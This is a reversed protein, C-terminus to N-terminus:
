IWPAPAGAKKDKVPSIFWVFMCRCQPALQSLRFGKETRTQCYTAATWCRPRRCRRRYWIVVRQRRCRESWRIHREYRTIHLDWWLSFSLRRFRTYHPLARPQIKGKCSLGNTRLSSANCGICNRNCYQGELDDLTSSKWRMQFPTHWHRIWPPRSSGGERNVPICRLVPSFKADFHVIEANFNWIKKRLPCLWVRSGM